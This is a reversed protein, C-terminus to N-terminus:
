KPPPTRSNRAAPPVCVPMPKTVAEQDAFEQLGSLEDMRAQILQRLRDVDAVLDTGSRRTVLRVRLSDLLRFIESGVAV